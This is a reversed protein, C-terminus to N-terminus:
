ICKCVVCKWSDPVRGRLACSFHFWDGCKDCAIMRQDFGEPMRCTCYLKIRRFSRTPRPITEISKSKLFPEFKGENLCHIIHQSMKQQEFHVYEPKSNYCLETAYAISFLGCSHIGKQQQVPVIEVRISSKSEQPNYIKALQLEIEPTIPDSTVARSDFLQM